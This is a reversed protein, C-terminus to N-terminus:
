QATGKELKKDNPRGVNCDETLAVIMLVLLFTGLAEAGVALPHSVIAGSGPNPHFESCGTSLLLRAGREPLLV